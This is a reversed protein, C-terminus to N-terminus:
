TMPPPSEPKKQAARKLSRIHWAGAAVAILVGIEAAMEGWMHPDGRRAISTPIMIALATLVFAAAMRGLTQLKKPSTLWLVIGALLLLGM